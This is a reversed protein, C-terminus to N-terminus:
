SNFIKVPLFPHREVEEEIIRRLSWGTKQEIPLEAFESYINQILTQVEKYTFTQEIEM